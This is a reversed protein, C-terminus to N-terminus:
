ITLFILVIKFYYGYLDMRNISCYYLFVEFIYQAEM